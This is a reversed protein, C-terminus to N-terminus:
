SLEIFRAEKTEKASASIIASAGFVGLLIGLLSDMFLEQMFDIDMLLSGFWSM